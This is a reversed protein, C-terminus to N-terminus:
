KRYTLVMAPPEGVPKSKTAVSTSVVNWGYNRKFPNNPAVSKLYSIGYNIKRRAMSLAIRLPSLNAISSKPITEELSLNSKPLNAFYKKIEAKYASYSQISQYDTPKVFRKRSENTKNDQLETVLSGMENYGHLSLPKRDLEFIAQNNYIVAVKLGASLVAELFAMDAGDGVALLKDYVGVVNVADNVLKNRAIRSDLVKSSYNVYPGTIDPIDLPDPIGGESTSIASIVDQVTKEIGPKVLVRAAQHPNSPPNNLEIQYDIVFVLDPIREILIDDLM